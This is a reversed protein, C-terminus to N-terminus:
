QDELGHPIPYSLVRIGNAIYGDADNELVLNYVTIPKQGHDISRVEEISGDMRLLKDGIKLEDAKVARGTSLIVKHRPTVRMENIVLVKQKKTVATAKVKATQFEGTRSRKGAFSIVEDGARIEDIRRESKDSMMIKTEPGFCFIHGGSTAAGPCISASKNFCQARFVCANKYDSSGVKALMPRNVVKGGVGDDTLK